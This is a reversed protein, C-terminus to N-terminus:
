SLTESSQSAEQMEAFALSFRRGCSVAAACSPLPPLLVLLFGASWCGRSALFERAGAGRIVEIGPRGRPPRGGPVVVGLTCRVLGGCGGM